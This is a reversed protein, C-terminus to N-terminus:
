RNSSARPYPKLAAVDPPLTGLLAEVPPANTPVSTAADAYAVTEEGHLLKEVEMVDATNAPTTTVTHVLGSEADVGIHAKMGFYFQQGKRTHYMEPDRAQDRNKTSTPANIITADVITGQRLTLGHQGLHKNVTDLISATLHHHELLRRLKLITTEDPIANENLEIGAFRRMSEIEYLADEMAPDSLAYWQQMFYIRLMTAYPIPQRGPRGDKPYHPEILALLKAWPVVKEMESLFDERRTRKKKADFSLSAFSRQKM